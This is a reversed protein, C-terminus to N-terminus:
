ALPASCAIGGPGVRSPIPLSASRSRGPVTVSMLASGKTARPAYREGVGDLAADGAGRARSFTPTFPNVHVFWGIYDSVRIGTDYLLWLIARNRVAARDALQGSENPPACAVLLREFEEPEITQILPRGVKPFVIRDFPNREIIECRVLWHFFARVSRAYTQITRESRPRGHKGDVKRMYAFWASIDTAEVEGVLTIDREEQLFTQLLGLATQHWELTKKSHNGGEHDQLYDDIARTLTMAARRRAQLAAQSHEEKDADSARQQQKAKAQTELKTRQAQSRAETVDRSRTRTRRHTKSSSSGEDPHQTVM